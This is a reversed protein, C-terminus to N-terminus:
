ASSNSFLPRLATAIQASSSRLPDLGARRLFGGPGVVHRQIWEGPHSRLMEEDIVQFSHPGSAERATITGLGAAVMARQAAQTSTGTLQRLLQNMQTGYTSARIDPMAIFGELLAKTSLTQGTSKLYKVM